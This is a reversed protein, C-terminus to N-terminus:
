NKTLGMFVDELSVEGRLLEVEPLGAKALRTQLVAKPCARPDTIVHVRDGLLSAQLVGEVAAIREISEMLNEGSIDWVEGRIHESKLRSPQDMALLRGDKMLGVRTCYEAEDM